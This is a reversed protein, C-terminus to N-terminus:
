LVNTINVYRDGSRYPAGQPGDVPNVLILPKHGLQPPSVIYPTNNIDTDIVRLVENTNFFQAAPYTYAISGSLTKVDVLYTFTNVTTGILQSIKGNLNFNKLKMVTDTTPGNSFTLGCRVTVPWLKDTFVYNVYNTFEFDGPSMMDVVLRQGFDTLRVRVRKFIPQQGDTVQQYISFPKAFQANNLNSTRYIFGYDEGQGNKLTISNSITDDNGSNFYKNSGFNGTIDFGVGLLAQEIGFFTTTGTLAQIGSVASYGLGPGPGGYRVADSITNAFFVCFGEEGQDATGYCAYDFSVVIDKTTDLYPAFYIASSVATSPLIYSM